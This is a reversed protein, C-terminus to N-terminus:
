LGGANQSIKFNCKNDNFTQQEKEMNELTKDNANSCSRGTFRTRPIAELRQEHRGADHERRKKPLERARRRSDRRSLFLCSVYIRM